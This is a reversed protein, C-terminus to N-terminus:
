PPHERKRREDYERVMENFKAIQQANLIQRVRDRAERHLAEFQPEVQHQLEAHKRATEDMIENLQQVQKGSLNLRRTLRRVVRQKDFGRHWHGGYWAYFFVGSGGVVAGLLFTLVFYFYARRSIMM